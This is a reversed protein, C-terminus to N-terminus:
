AALEKEERDAILLDIFWFRDVKRLDVRAANDAIWRRLIPRKIEYPDGGQKDTRETKRRTATLGFKEIWHVISSRDVGMLGGLETASYTYPNRASLHLRKRKVSIATETRRFGARRLTRAIVPLTRYHCSELIATERDTWPSEKYRPVALGLTAARKSVWWRPRGLKAALSKIAAKQPNNQYVFRIAQDIHEDNSWRKRAGPQRYARIGLAAGRQMIVGRTRRLLQCLTDVGGPEAYHQRVLNVEPVTWFRRM